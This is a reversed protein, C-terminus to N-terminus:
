LVKVRTIEAGNEDLVHVACALCPDYSHITRLIEIPKTPDAIPTGILAAEYPGRQGKADRPSANWTSPVVAQFNAIKGNEINIWHSLTGRPAEHFGVGRAKAPWTSPEWKENAHIKLDGAKINAALMALWEFNKQSVLLTEIGRAATRGLTSFLAAAPAGLTKLVLDVTGVIEKQGQAYGVLMRALPGVEVPRDAYRPAKVWTYKGDTNLEKYPPTPGTFNENTEGVYPHLGKGDGGPYSYWAHTVEESIDETKVPHVKPFDSVKVLGPKLWMDERKQGAATPFDGFSM